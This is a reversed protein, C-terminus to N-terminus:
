AVHGDIACVGLKRGPPPCLGRASHTHPRLELTARPFRGLSLRRSTGGTFTHHLQCRHRAAAGYPQAGDALGGRRLLQLRRANARPDQQAGLLANGSQPERLLRSLERDGPQLTESTGRHLVPRCRHSRRARARGTAGNRGPAMQGRATNCLRGRAAQSCPDPTRGCHAHRNFARHGTRANGRTGVCAGYRWFLHDRVGPAALALSLSSLQHARHRRFDPQVSDAPELDSGTWRSPPARRRVGPYDGRHGSLERQAAPGPLCHRDVGAGRRLGTRCDAKAGPAGRDDLRRAPTGM